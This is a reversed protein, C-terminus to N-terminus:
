FLPFKVVGSMPTSKSISKERLEKVILLKTSNRLHKPIGYPSDKTVILNTKVLHGNKDQSAYVWNGSKKDFLITYSDITEWGHYWEDGWQVAKFTGGDAQKLTHIVPTAPVAIARGSLVIFLLLVIATATLKRYPNM